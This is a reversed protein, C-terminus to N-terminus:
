HSLKKVSLTMLIQFLSDVGVTSKLLKDKKLFCNAVDIEGFKYAGALDGM